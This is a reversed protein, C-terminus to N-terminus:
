VKQASKIRLATAKLRAELNYKVDECREAHKGIRKRACGGMCLPLVKCDVCEPDLTADYMIYGLGFPGKTYNNNVLDIISGNSREENGLDAWCHYVRGDSDIVFVNDRDAGCYSSKRKVFLGRPNVPQGRSVLTDDFDMKECAYEELSIVTDDNGYGINNANEVWAVYPTINRKVNDATIDLSDLVEKYVEQNERDVNIRVSMNAFFHHTEKINKIITDFTGQGGVLPRRANHTQANGDLTIQIYEVMCEQLRKAVDETLLYGNTTMSSGYGINNDECMKILKKSINEVAPLALLPEGGMGVYISM